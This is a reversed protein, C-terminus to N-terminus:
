NSIGLIPHQLYLYGILSLPMESPWRGLLRGLKKCARRDGYTYCYHGHIIDDAFGNESLAFLLVVLLLIRMGWGGRESGRRGILGLAKCGPGSQLLASQPICSQSLLFSKGKWLDNKRTLIRGGGAKIPSSMREQGCSNILIGETPNLNWVNSRQNPDEIGQDGKLLRRTGISIKMHPFLPVGKFLEIAGALRLTASLFLTSPWLFYIELNNEM